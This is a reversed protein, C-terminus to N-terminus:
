QTTLRLRSCYKIVSLERTEVLEVIEGNRFLLIVNNNIIVCVSLINHYL